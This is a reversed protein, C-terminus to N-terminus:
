ECSLALNHADCIDVTGDGNVDAIESYAANTQITNLLLEVDASTLSGDGNMDGSIDEDYDPPISRDKAVLTVSDLANGSSDYATMILNNGDASIIEYNSTDAIMCESYTVEAPAYFQSGSNGMVYTVGKIAKNRMYVHQHGCLVLDVQADVFIPEWNALVETATDDSVVAYAPHHMVIIKWTADSADLDDEIWQAITDFDDETMSGNILQEDLFISTSLCVVHCNGYDYSYFEEEFGDPGNKPLDFLTLFLEPKGTTANSEHNGPIALVPLESFVPSANEYFWQWNLASQGQQVMDGGMVAFDLDPFNVYAGTLLNGWATYDSVANNYSSYQIDGLYMFSVTDDAGADRMTFSKIDGWAGENGVRYYYTVGPTLGTMTACFASYGNSTDNKNLTATITSVDSSLDDSTSYELNGTTVEPVDWWTVAMETTDNAPSLTEYCPATIGLSSDALATVAFLVSIIVLALVIIIHKQVKKM